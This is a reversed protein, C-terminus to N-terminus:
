LGDGILTFPAWFAPHASADDKPGIEGAMMALSAKQLAEAKSDGSRHYGITTITLTEAAVDDIRWHSALVSRAGAHFFARSLGSLGYSESGDPSATNCASLLVWEASLRLGAIESATLLGDDGAESALPAALVLSPEGQGGQGAVLGHTAFAVIGARSLRDRVAPERLRAERAEVGMLLDGDVMKKLADGERRTGSLRCLKALEGRVAAGDRFIIRTDTDGGKGRCANDTARGKADARGDFSPDAMMFLRGGAPAQAARSRLTRLAGVSPLVALAKHKILWETGHGLTEASRDDGETPEEVVLVAPPLATMPGSPAILLTKIDSTGIVAQIQPQGLLAQHLRWAARRDFALAKQECSGRAARPGYGCPDIQSRLGSVLGAVEHGSMGIEAWASKSATVVFVMGRPTGEPIMWLVLAEGPRLLAQVSTLNLPPPAALDAYSPEAAILRAEAASFAADAATRQRDLEKLQEPSGLGSSAMAVITKDLRDRNDMAQEYADVLSRNASQVGNRAGARSIASGAKSQAAIQAALFAEARMSDNPEAKRSWLAFLGSALEGYCAKSVGGRFWSQGGDATRPCTERLRNIGPGLKGSRIEAQGLLVFHDFAPRGDSAKRKASRDLMPLAETARGTELLIRSLRDEANYLYARKLNSEPAKRALELAHRAHREADEPQDKALLVMALLSESESGGFRPDLEKELSLRKRAAAEAKDFKGQGLHAQILLDYPFLGGAPTDRGAMPPVGPPPRFADADATELWALLTEVEAWKESLLLIMAYVSNSLVMPTRGRGGLAASRAVKEAQEIDGIMVLNTALGAKTALTMDGDPGFVETSVDVLEKSLVASDAWRNEQVAKNIRQLLSAIRPQSGAFKEYDVGSVDPLNLRKGTESQRTPNAIATKQIAALRVAEECRDDQYLHMILLGRLQNANHDAVGYATEAKSLAARLVTRGQDVEGAEHLRIALGLDMLLTLPHQPGYTQAHLDRMGFSAQIRSQTPQKESHAISNLRGLEKDEDRTMPRILPALNTPPRYVDELMWSTDDKLSQCAAANTEATSVQRTPILSGLGNARAVEMARSCRGASDLGLLHIRLASRTLNSKPGYKKLLRAHAEGSLRIAAEHDGASSLANAALAKVLLTNVHDPGNIRISEQLWTTAIGAGAQWDGANNAQGWQKSLTQLRANDAGAVPRGDANIAKPLEASFDTELASVNNIFEQCISPATSQAVTAASPLTVALM